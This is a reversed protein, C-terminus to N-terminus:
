AKKEPRLLTNIEDQSLLPAINGESETDEVTLEPTLSMTLVELLNQIDTFIRDDIRVKVGEFSKWELARLAVVENFYGKNILGTPPLGLIFRAWLNLSLQEFTDPDGM